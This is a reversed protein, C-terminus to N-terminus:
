RGKLWEILAKAAAGLIPSVLLGMLWLKLDTREQKKKAAELQAALRDKEREVQWIRDFAKILDGPLRDVSRRLFNARWEDPIRQAPELPQGQNDILEPDRM